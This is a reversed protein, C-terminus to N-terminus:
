RVGRNMLYLVLGIIASVVIGVIIAVLLFIQQKRRYARGGQGPLLYFRKPDDQLLPM